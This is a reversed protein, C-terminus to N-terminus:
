SFLHSIKNAMKGIVGFRRRNFGNNMYEDCYNYRESSKWEPEKTVKKELIITTM